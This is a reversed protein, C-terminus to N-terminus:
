KFIVVENKKAVDEVFPEKQHMVWYTDGHRRDTKDKWNNFYTFSLYEEIPAPCLYKQKGVKVESLKKYFKAPSSILKYAGYKAICVIDEDHQDCPEPQGFFFITFKVSKICCIIGTDHTGNYGAEQPELRSFVTFGLDQPKFGLDYLTWGIAKRTKYDIPDIVALDIDDDDPLFNKDRYWGMLAGYVVLFRVGYKDFVQKILELDKIKDSM